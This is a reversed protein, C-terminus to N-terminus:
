GARHWVEFDLSARHVMGETVQESDQRESQLFIGAFSADRHGHLLAVVAARIEWMSVVTLAQVDIQAISGTLGDGGAMTIGPAGSVRYLAIAPRQTKQPLHNWVIRQAVHATITGDATLLARLDEEM